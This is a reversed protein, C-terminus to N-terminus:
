LNMQPIQKCIQNERGHEMIEAKMLITFLFKDHHNEDFFVKKKIFQFDPEFKLIPEELKWRFLHAKLLIVYDSEM